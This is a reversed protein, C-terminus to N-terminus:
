LDSYLDPQFPAPKTKHGTRPPPHPAAPPPPLADSNSSSGISELFEGAQEKTMTRAALKALMLIRDFAQPPMGGALYRERTEKMKSKPFLKIAAAMAQIAFLISADKNEEGGTEWDNECGSELPPEPLGEVDWDPPPLSNNRLAIDLYYNMIGIAPGDQAATAEALIGQLVPITKAFDNQGATFIAAAFKIQYPANKKAAAHMAAAFETVVGPWLSNLLPHSTEFAKQLAHVAAVSGDTHQNLGRKKLAKLFTRFLGM